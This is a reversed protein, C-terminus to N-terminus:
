SDTDPDPHQAGSGHGRFRHFVWGVLGAVTGILWGFPGVDTLDGLSGWDAPSEGPKFLWEHRRGAGSVSGAEDPQVSERPGLDDHCDPSMRDASDRIFPNSPASWGCGRILPSKGYHRKIVERYRKELSTGPRWAVWRFLTYLPVFVLVYNVGWLITTKRWMAWAVMSVGVPLLVLLNWIVPRRSEQLLYQAEM